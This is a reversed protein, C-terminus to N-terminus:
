ADYVKNNKLLAKIKTAHFMIVPINKQCFREFHKIKNLSSDNSYAVVGLSYSLFSHICATFFRQKPDIMM